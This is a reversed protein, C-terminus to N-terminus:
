PLLERTRRGVGEDDGQWLRRMEASTQLLAELTGEAEVKGDKLLIIHDARKLVAHRHSVVLLGRAALESGGEFLRDWLLAETELDLASSLDDFVLLDPERIFMRAAAARQAQGGSLRVGRRGVLTDLGDDLTAVDRELVAAKIARDLGAPDAPCGLLVNDRLTDSFLRPVQPMYASRPPGFFQLADVVPADNWRIEGSDKPLLGLLVELLTTKGAGVRGTIVTCTGATLALNIGSIGRETGPYCYSLGTAQLSRLLDAAPRAATAISPAPPLPGTLNLPAPAVLSAARSLADSRTWLVASLRDLSVTAQQHGTLWDAVELPFQVVAGLYTVFLAFDGVSFQGGRMAQAALLLLVGTGVNVINDNFAEVLQGFTRDRLATTRRTKNLEQVHAIVHPLATSVKIIQIANLLGALFGIARGTAERSQERYRRIHQGFLNVVTIVVALPLCVAVTLWVNIGAMVVVAAVVFISRGFLDTWRDIFEVVEDVDDRFRNLMDGGSLPTAAGSGRLVGDLLNRRLLGASRFLLSGWGFSLGTGSVVDAAEIAVFILIILWIRASTASGGVLADFFSRIVLGTALPLGFTITACVLCLAFLGPSYRLLRIIVEITTSSSRPARRMPTGNNAHVLSM